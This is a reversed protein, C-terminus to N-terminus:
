YINIYGDQKEEYRDWDVEGIQDPRVRKGIWAWGGTSDLVLVCQKWNDPLTLIQEDGIPEVFTQGTRLYRLKWKTGPIAVGPGVFSRYIAQKQDEPLDMNEFGLDVFQGELFELEIPIHSQITTHPAERIIQEQIVQDLHAIKQLYMENLKM